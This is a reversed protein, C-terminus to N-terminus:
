KIKSLSENNPFIALIIGEKLSYYIYSKDNYDFNRYIKYVNNYIHGNINLDNIYVPDSLPPLNSFTSFTIKNIIISLYKSSGTRLKPSIYYEIDSAFNSVPYFTYGKFQMIETRKTSCDDEAYVDLANYGINIGQGLFILTDNNQNLFKLTDFGHYSRLPEGVLSSINITDVKVAYEPCPREKCSTGFLILLLNLSFFIPTKNKM